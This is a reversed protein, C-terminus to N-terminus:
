LKSDIDITQEFPIKQSVLAGVIIFFGCIALVLLLIRGLKSSNDIKQKEM